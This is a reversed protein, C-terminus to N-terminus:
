AAAKERAGSAEIEIVVKGRVRGTKVRAMAAPAEEFSFVSDIVPKLTGADVLAAIQALQEGSSHM